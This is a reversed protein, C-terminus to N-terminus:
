ARAESRISKKKKKWLTVVDVSVFTVVPPVPSVVINLAKKRMAEEWSLAVM